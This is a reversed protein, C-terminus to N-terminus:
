PNRTVKLVSDTKIKATQELFFKNVGPITKLWERILQFIKKVQIVPKVALKLIKIATEEGKQKFIAQEEATMQLYIEGLGDELISEIKKYEDFTAANQSPPLLGPTVGASGATEPQEYFTQPEHEAKLESAKEPSIIAEKEPLKLGEEKLLNKIEGSNLKSKLASM